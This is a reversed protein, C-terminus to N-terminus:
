AATKSAHLRVFPYQTVWHGGWRDGRDIVVVRSEEPLYAEDPLANAKRAKPKRPAPESLFGKRWEM